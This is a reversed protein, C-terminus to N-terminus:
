DSKRAGHSAWCAASFSTQELTPMFTNASYSKPECMGYHRAQHEDRKEAAQWVENSCWDVNQIRLMGPWQVEPCTSQSCVLRMHLLLELTSQYKGNGFSPRTPETLATAPATRLGLRFRLSCLEGALDLCLEIRM